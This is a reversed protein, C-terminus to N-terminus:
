EEALTAENHEEETHSGGELDPNGPPEGLSPQAEQCGSCCRVNRPVTACLHAVKELTDRCSNGILIPQGLCNLSQNGNPAPPLDGRSRFSQILCLMKPSALRALPSPAIPLHSLPLTQLSEV